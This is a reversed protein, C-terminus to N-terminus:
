LKVKSFRKHKLICTPVMNPEYNANQKGLEAAFSYDPQGRNLLLDSVGIKRRPIHCRGRSTSAHPDMHRKKRAQHALVIDEMIRDYKAMMVELRDNTEDEGKCELLAIEVVKGKAEASNTTDKKLIDPCEHKLHGRGGCGHCTVYPPVHRKTDWNHGRSGIGQSQLVFLKLDKMDNVLQTLDAEVKQV